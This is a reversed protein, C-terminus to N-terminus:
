RVDAPIVDGREARGTDIGGEFGGRVVLYTFFGAGAAIAAERESAGTQLTTFFTAGRAYISNRPWERTLRVM